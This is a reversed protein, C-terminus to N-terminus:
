AAAEAGAKAQAATLVLGGASVATQPTPDALVSVQSLHVKLLEVLPAYKPNVQRSDFRLLEMMCDYKPDYYQPVVSGEVTLEQLGLRRLITASSHRVTATTIGVSGGLLRSLSFAGLVLLLGECTSRGDQSVAWGGVEAYRLGDRRARAVDRKVADKVVDSWVSDRSLPCNRVRLQELSTVKAHERYWICSSVQGRPNTMVLHWSQDDEPTQHRGDRTLDSGKVAGDQLYVTGRVRQIDRVIQRRRSANLAPADFVTPVASGRPAVVVLREQIAIINRELLGLM